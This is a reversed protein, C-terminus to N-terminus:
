FSVRQNYLVILQRKEIWLIDIFILGKKKNQSLSGDMTSWLDSTCIYIIKVFYEWSFFITWLKMDFMHKFSSFVFRGFWSNLVWLWYWSGVLGLTWNVWPLLTQKNTLTRAHYLLLRENMHWAFCYSLLVSAHIWSPFWTFVQDKENHAFCM